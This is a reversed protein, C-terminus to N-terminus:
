LVPESITRRWVRFRSSEREVDTRAPSACLRNAIPDHSNSTARPVHPFAADRSDHAFQRRTASHRRRADNRHRDSHPRRPTSRSQRGLSDHRALSEHPNHRAVPSGATAVPGIRSSTKPQWSPENLRRGARGIIGHELLGKFFYRYPALRGASRASNRKLQPPKRREAVKM